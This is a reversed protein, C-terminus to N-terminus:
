TEKPALESAKELAYKVDPFSERLVQLTKFMTQNELELRKVESKYHTIQNADINYPKVVLCPLDGKAPLVFQSYDIDKHPPPESFKDFTKILVKIREM